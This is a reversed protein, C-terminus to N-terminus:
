CRVDTRPLLARHDYSVDDLQRVEVVVTEHGIGLQGAMAHNPIALQPLHAPRDVREGVEVAVKRVV